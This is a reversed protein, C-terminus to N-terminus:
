ASPSRVTWHRRLRPQVQGATGRGVLEGSTTLHDSEAGLRGVPDQEGEGVLDRRLVDDLVADGQEAHRLADDGRGPDLDEVPVTEDQGAVGLEFSEVGKTSRGTGM